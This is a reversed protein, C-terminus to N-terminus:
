SACPIYGRRWMIATSRRFIAAYMDYTHTNYIKKLFNFICETIHISKIELRSRSTPYTGHVYPLIKVVSIEALLAFYSSGSSQIEGFKFHDIAKMEHPLFM